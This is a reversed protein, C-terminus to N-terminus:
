KCLEHKRSLLPSQSVSQAKCTMASRSHENDKSTQVFRM